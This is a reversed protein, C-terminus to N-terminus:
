KPKQPANLKLASAAVMRRPALRQSGILLKSLAGPVVTPRKGLSSLGTAVVQAASVKSGITPMTESGAIAQFGTDVKGPCLALVHVGRPKVEAWLAEAFLLDFAKTAGYTAMWPTPQFAAMSSVFVIGGRGRALMPGLFRHTMVVPVRCNLDVMRGEFGADQEHFLGYSGFGANNVLLGVELGADAVAKAVAADSGPALLDQEVVLCRANAAEIEEALDELLPRRRAVVVVDMGLRALQLAFERGFGSSAGTVLAAGGYKESWGM